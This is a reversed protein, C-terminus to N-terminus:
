WREIVSLRCGINQRLEFSGWPMWWNWSAGRGCWCRCAETVTVAVTHPLEIDVAV